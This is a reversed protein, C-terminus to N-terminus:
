SRHLEYSMPVRIDTSASEYGLLISDQSFMTHERKRRGEKRGEKRVLRGLTLFRSRLMVTRARESIEKIRRSVHLGATM